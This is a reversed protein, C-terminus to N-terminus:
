SDVSCCSLALLLSFHDSKDGLLVLTLELVGVVQARERASVDSLWPWELVPKSGGQRSLLPPRAGVCQPATLFPFLVPCHHCVHWWVSHCLSLCEVFGECCGKVWGAKFQIRTILYTIKLWLSCWYHEPEFVLFSSVFSVTHSFDEIKFIWLSATSVLKVEIQCLSSDDFASAEVSFVGGHPKPTPM